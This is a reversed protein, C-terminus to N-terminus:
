ENAQDRLISGGHDASQEVLVREANLQDTFIVLELGVRLRVKALVRNQFFPHHGGIGALQSCLLDGVDDVIQRRQFSGLLSSGSGAREQKGRQRKQKPGPSRRGCEERRDRTASSSAT